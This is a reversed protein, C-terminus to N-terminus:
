WTKFLIWIINDLTEWFSRDILRDVPDRFLVYEATTHNREFNTMKTPLIKYRSEPVYDTLAATLSHRLENTPSRSSPERYACALDAFEDWHSKMVNCEMRHSLDVNTKRSAEKSTQKILFSIFDMGYLVVPGAVDDDASSSRIGSPWDLAWSELM